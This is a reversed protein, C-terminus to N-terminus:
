ENENNRHLEELDTAHDIFLIGDLHDIEHQFIQSLLGRGEMTFKNGKEDYASVTTRTARKTRGYMHRVSLCGEDMAKKDNSKKVIEPNIFVFMKESDEHYAKPSVIFIRKSINIQPAALAVGDDQSDLAVKMDDLLKFLEPSGFNTVIEAKDRLTKHPEQIIEVM